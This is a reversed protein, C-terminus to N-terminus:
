PSIRPNPASVDIALPKGKVNRISSFINTNKRPVDSSCLNDSQVIQPFFGENGAQENQISGM